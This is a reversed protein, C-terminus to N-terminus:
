KESEYSEEITVNTLQFLLLNQKARQVRSRLLRQKHQRQLNKMHNEARIRKAANRNEQIKRWESDTWGKKGKWHSKLRYYATVPNFNLRYPFLRNASIMCDIVTQCGDKGILFRKTRKSARSLALLSGFLVIVIFFTKFNTM